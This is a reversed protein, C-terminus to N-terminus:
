SWAEAFARAAAISLVLSAQWEMQLDLLMDRLMPHAIIPAGFAHRTEAHRVAECFARRLVGAAAMTNHVRSFELAEMIVKIGQPPPAVEEAFAHDLEIEGTPLGRTGLKDKLRRL